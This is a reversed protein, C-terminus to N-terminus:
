VKFVSLTITHGSGGTTSASNIIDGPTIKSGELLQFGPCERDYCGSKGYGDAQKSTYIKLIM